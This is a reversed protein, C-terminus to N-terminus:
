AADPPPPRRGPDRDLRDLIELFEPGARVARSEQSGHWRYFADWSHLFGAPARSALRIWLEYDAMLPLSEDFAAGAADLTSRRVLTTLM